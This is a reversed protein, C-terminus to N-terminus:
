RGCPWVGLDGFLPLFLRVLVLFFEFHLKGYSHPNTSTNRFEFLRPQRLSSVVASPRLNSGRTGSGQDYVTTTAGALARLVPSSLTGM